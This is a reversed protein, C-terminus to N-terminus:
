GGLLSNKKMGLNGPVQSGGLMSGGGTPAAPMTDAGTLMTSGIGENAIAGASALTGPINPQKKNAANYAEDSAKEQKVAQAQANRQAERQAAAGREGAYISYGAATAAAAAAVTTATVSGAM